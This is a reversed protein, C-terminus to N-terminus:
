FQDNIVLAEADAIQMGIPLMFRVQMINLHPTPHIALRKGDYGIHINAKSSPVAMLALSTGMFTRPELTARFGDIPISDTARQDFGINNLTRYHKKYHDFVTYSCIVKFGAKRMWLPVAECVEEVKTVANGATLAGTAVPTLSMGSIIETLGDMIDAAGTGSANYVGDLICMDNIKAWYDEVIKNAIFQNLTTVNPDLKASKVQVIYNNRLDEPDFEFDWKSQNVQLVRDTFVADNGSFDDQKRYPRPEGTISLKPLNLPSDVNDHIAFESGPAWENVMQLFIENGVKAFLNNLASVDYAM